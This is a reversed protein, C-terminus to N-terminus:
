GARRGARDLNVDHGALGVGNADGLDVARLGAGQFGDDFLFVFEGVKDVAGVVPGLTVIDDVLSHHRGSRGSRECCALASGVSLEAGFESESLDHTPIVILRDEDDLGRLAVATKGPIEARRAVLAPGIGVFGIGGVAFARVVPERGAARGRKAAGPIGALLIVITEEGFRIHSHAWPGAAGGVHEIPQCAVVAGGVDALQRM